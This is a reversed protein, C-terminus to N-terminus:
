RERRSEQLHSRYATRFRRNVIVLSRKM